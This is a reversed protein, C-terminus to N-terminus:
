RVVLKAKTTKDQATFILFYYGPVLTTIDIELTELENYVSARVKRVHEGKINFFDIAVEDGHLLESSEVNLIREGNTPNPYIVFEKFIDEESARVKTSASLYSPMGYGVLTDPEDSNSATSKLYAMVEWPSLEPFAQWFGAVLGTVLPTSFSTGNSFGVSETAISVASGLAVLDPKINGDSSPGFSSFSSKQVSRDVAGIALVSDADSPANLYKWSNNGENGVSSVVIMGKRAAISAARSVITSMGNMDQYTYSESPDDFYSYAVSSNIVDVGISDAYEAALLWNFEEINHESRVDETVCLIFEADHAVGNFEGEKSAAIVSLVKTGHTDYQFVNDTKKIFDRSAIIQEGTLLHKFYPSSDVHDFGSDFVAVLMGQGKFGDKHMEQIGLMRNQLTTANAKPDGSIVSNLANTGNKGAPSVRIRNGEQQMTGPALMTVQRVYPQSAIQSIQQPTAEVLAANMWRSTFLPEIDQNQLEVLYEGSVPLDERTIPISFKQKREIARESLFTAPEDINYTTGEKDSFFVAYRNEQGLLATTAWLMLGCIMLKSKGM